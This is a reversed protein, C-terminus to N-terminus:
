QRRRMRVSVPILYESLRRKESQQIVSSPRRSKM